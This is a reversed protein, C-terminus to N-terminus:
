RRLIQDLTMHRHRRVPPQVQICEQSFVLPELYVPVPLEAGHDPVELRHRLAVILNRGM